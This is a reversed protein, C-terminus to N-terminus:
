HRVKRSNSHSVKRNNNVDPNFVKVEAGFSELIKAGELALKRSYSEERLSGYLVLIKPAHPKHKDETYQAQVNQTTHKPLKYDLM